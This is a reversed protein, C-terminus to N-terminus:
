SGKHDHKEVIDDRSHLSTSSESVAAYPETHAKVRLVYCIARRVYVCVCDVFDVVQPYKAIQKAGHSRPNYHFLAPTFSSATPSSRCSPRRWPHCHLSELSSLLLVISRLWRPLSHIVPVPSITSLSVAAHLLTEETERISSRTYRLARCAHSSFVGLDMKRAFKEIERLSLQSPRANIVNTRGDSVRLGRTFAVAMVISMEINLNVCIM